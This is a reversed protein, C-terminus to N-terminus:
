EYEEGPPRKTIQWILELEAGETIDREIEDKLAHWAALGTIKRQGRITPRDPPGPITAMLLTPGAPHSLPPLPPPAPERPGDLLVKMSDNLWRSVVSELATVHEDVTLADQINTRLIGAVGARPEDSIQGLKEFVDLRIQDIARHAKASQKFVEGMAAPSTVEATRIAEFVELPKKARQISQCLRDTAVATKYRPLAAYAGVISPLLKQLKGHYNTVDQGFRKVLEVVQDNLKQLNALSPLVPITVGFIHSTRECVREWEAQEPLTLV